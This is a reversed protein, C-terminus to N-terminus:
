PIVELALIREIMIEVMIHTGVEHSIFRWMWEFDHGFYLQPSNRKPKQSNGPDARSERRNYRRADKQTISNPDQLLHKRRSPSFM